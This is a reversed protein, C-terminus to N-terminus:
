LFVLLVSLRAQRAVGPSCGRLFFLSDISDSLPPLSSPTPPLLFPSAVPAFSGPFFVTKLKGRFHLSLVQWCYLLPALNVIGVTVQPVFFGM